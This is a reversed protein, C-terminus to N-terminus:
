LRFNYELQMYTSVPRGDKEAPKFKIRRAADIAQETLGDPLRVVAVINTVKGSSRFVAKIVVLGEVGHEQALRTYVPVPKDKIVAKKTIEKGSYIKEEPQDDQNSNRNAESQSFAISGVALVLPLYALPRPMRQFRIV